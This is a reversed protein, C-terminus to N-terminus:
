GNEIKVLADRFGQVIWRTYKCLEDLTLLLGGTKKDITVSAGFQAEHVQLHMEVPVESLVTLVVAGDEILESETPIMDPLVGEGMIAIESVLSKPSVLTPVIIRHKDERDAEHVLWLPNLDPSDFLPQRDSEEATRKWPQSEDVLTRIHPKTIGRIKYRGGGREERLYKTKTAFIPFETGSPPCPTERLTCEWVLHDLASRLNHVCDGALLGWRTLDPHSAFHVRFRYETLESNHHASFSGPQKEWAGVESRLERLHEEARDLKAFAGDLLAV